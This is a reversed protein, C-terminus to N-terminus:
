KQEGKMDKANKQLYEIVLWRDKKNIATRDAMSRFTAPWQNAVFESEKHATHCIGCNQMYLEKAKTMMAKNDSAFQGKDIYAEITASDWKGNKGEVKNIFNLKTNKAFAAVMIRKSDSFYLVSPAKPNIFGSIKIKLRNGEDKIISFANTPLLRGSAKSDDKSLFLSLVEDSYSSSEALCLSICAVISILIRM